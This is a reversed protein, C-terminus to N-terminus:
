RRDCSEQMVCVQFKVRHQQISGAAEGMELAAKTDDVWVSLDQTECELRELLTHSTALLSSLTKLESMIRITLEFHNKVCHLKIM